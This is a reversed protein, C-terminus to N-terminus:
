KRLIGIGKLLNLAENLPYDVIAAKDETEKESTEVDDKEEKKDEKVPKNKNGNAL